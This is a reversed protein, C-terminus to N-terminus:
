SKQIPWPWCFCRYEAIGLNQVAVNNFYFSPSCKVGHGNNHQVVVFKILWCGTYINKNYKAQKKAVYM